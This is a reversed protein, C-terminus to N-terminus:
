TKTSAPANEEEPPWPMAPLAAIEQDLATLEIDPHEAFWTLMPHLLYAAIFWTAQSEQRHTLGLGGGHVLANRDDYIDLVDFFYTCRIGRAGAEKVERMVERLASGPNGDQNLTMTMFPCAPQRDGAYFRTLPMGRIFYSVRRAIRFKKARDDPEGLLAELAMVSSLFAIDPQWSLWAQSLLEVAVIARRQLPTRQEVSRKLAQDLFRYALDESWKAHSDDSFSWGGLVGIRQWGPAAGSLNYYSLMATTIQGPLGFTQIRGASMPNEIHQVARLVALAGEILPVAEDAGNTVEVEAVAIRDLDAATEDSAENFWDPLGQPGDNRAERILKGGTGAPHFRVTGVEWMRSVTLGPVPLLLRSPKGAPEASDPV